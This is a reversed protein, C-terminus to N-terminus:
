ASAPAPRSSPSSRSPCVRSSTPCGTRRIGQTTSCGSASSAPSGRASRTQRRARSAPPWDRAAVRLGAPPAALHRRQHATGAPAPHVCGAPRRAANRRLIGAAHRRRRHVPAGRHLAHLRRDGSRRRLHGALHSPEARPGAAVGAHRRRRHLRPRRIRRRRADLLLQRRRVGLAAAARDHRRGAPPRQRALHRGSVGHGGRVRADRSKLREFLPYSFMGWREQPGGQVCCNTGDGVRYLRSPDGVPLSRLMVAHILTFIATTGGIGLALTLIATTTFVRAVWFQRLAYRIEGLLTGM